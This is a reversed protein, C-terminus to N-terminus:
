LLFIEKQFCNRKRVPYYDSVSRRFFIRYELSNYQKCNEPTNIYIVYGSLLICKIFFGVDQQYWSSNQLRIQVFFYIIVDNEVLFITFKSNRLVDCQVENMCYMLLTHLMKCMTDIHHDFQFRLCQFVSNAISIQFNVDIGTHSMLEKKKKCLIRVTHM